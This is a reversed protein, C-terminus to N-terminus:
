LKKLLSSTPNAYELFSNLIVAAALGDKEKIMVSRRSSFQKTLKRATVTSETEDWCTFVIDDSSPISKEIQVNLMLDIIDKCLPTLKNKYVPLGVVFAKINHERVLDSLSNSFCQLEDQSQRKHKRSIDNAPGVFVRAEDSIAVGIHKTGIDLGAIKFYLPSRVITYLLKSKADVFKM